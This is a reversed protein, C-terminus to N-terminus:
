FQMDNTLFWESQIFSWVILVKLAKNLGKNRDLLEYLYPFALIGFFFHVFRDYHNRTTHFTANLDIHFLSKFWDNYPVCSYIYRAGIIHIVIFISVCVFSAMSLRNSRLDLIPILLLLITGAHQLVQEDPYVPHICTIIGVLVILGVISGKLHKSGM